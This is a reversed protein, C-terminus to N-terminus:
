HARDLHVRHRKCRRRLCPLDWLKLNHSDLPRVVVRRDLKDSSERMEEPFPVGIPFNGFPNSVAPVHDQMAQVCLTTSLPSAPPSKEDVSMTRTQQQLSLGLGLGLRIMDEAQFRGTQQLLGGLAQTLSTILDAAPLPIDQPIKAAASTSTAIQAQEEGIDERLPALHSEALGQLTLRTDSVRTQMAGSSPQQLHKLAAGLPFPTSAALASKEPKSQIVRKGSKAAWPAISSFTSGQTTSDPLQGADINPLTGDKKAITVSQQVSRRRSQAEQLNEACHLMHDRIQGTTYTLTSGAGKQVYAPADLDGKDTVSGGDRVDKKEEEALPRQWYTAGSRRHYWYPVGDDTFFQEFPDKQAFAWSRYVAAVVHGLPKTSDSGKM